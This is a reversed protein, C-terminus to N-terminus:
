FLGRIFVKKPQQDKNQSNNLDISLAEMEKVELRLLKKDQFKFVLQQGVTFAQRPFQELFAKAMQDTDLTEALNSKAMWDVTLTICAISQNRM